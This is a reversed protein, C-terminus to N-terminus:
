TSKICQRQTSVLVKATTIWYSKGACVGVCLFLPVCVCIGGGVTVQTHIICLSKKVLYGLNECYECMNLQMGMRWGMSEAPQKGVSLM